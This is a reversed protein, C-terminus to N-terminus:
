RPGPDVGLGAQAMHGVEHYLSLSGKNPPSTSVKNAGGGSDCPTLFNCYKFGLTTSDVSFQYINM